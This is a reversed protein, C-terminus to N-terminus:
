SPTRHDNSLNQIYNLSHLKPTDVEILTMTMWRSLIQDFSFFLRMLSYNSFITCVIIPIWKVQGLRVYITKFISCVTRGPLGFTNNRLMKYKQLM